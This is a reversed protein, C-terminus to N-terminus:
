FTQTHTMAQSLPFHGFLLLLRLAVIQDVRQQLLV